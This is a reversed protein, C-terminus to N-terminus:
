GGGVSGSCPAARERGERQAGLAVVARGATAHVSGPSLDLLVQRKASATGLTIIAIDNFFTVDSRM